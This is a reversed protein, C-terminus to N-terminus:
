SKINYGFSIYVNQPNLTAETLTNSIYFDGNPEVKVEAPAGINNVGGLATEYCYGYVAGYLTVSKDPRFDEPITGIMTYGNKRYGSFTGIVYNGQRSLYNIDATSDAVLTVTGEKFGLASLREEFAAQNADLASLRADITGKSTDTGAYTARDAQAANSVKVTGERLRDVANNVATLLEAYTNSVDPPIDVSVSPRTRAIIPLIIKKTTTGTGENADKEFVWATIPTTQELCIDPIRAIARGATNDCVRVIAERMGVCAFHVEIITADTDIDIELKQGYDWQHLGNVTIADVGATFVAKISM